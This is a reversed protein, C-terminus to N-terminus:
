SSNGLRFHAATVLQLLVLHHEVSLGLRLRRSHNLYTLLCSHLELFALTLFDAKEELGRPLTHGDLAFWFVVAEGCGVFGGEEHLGGLVILLCALYDTLLQLLLGWELRLRGGLTDTVDM